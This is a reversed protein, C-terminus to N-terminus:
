YKIGMLVELLTKSCWINSLTNSPAMFKDVRGQPTSIVRKQEIETYGLHQILAELPCYLSVLINTKLSFFFFFM